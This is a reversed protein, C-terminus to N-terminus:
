SWVGVKEFQLAQSVFNDAGSTYKWFACRDALQVHSKLYWINIIVYSFLSPLLRLDYLNM